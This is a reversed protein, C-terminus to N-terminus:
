RGIGGFLNRHDRLIGPGEGPQRAPRLVYFLRHLVFSWPMAPDLNFQSCVYARWANAFKELSETRASEINPFNSVDLGRGVCHQHLEALFAQVAERRPDVQKRRFFM